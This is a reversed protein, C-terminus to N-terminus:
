ILNNLNNNENSDIPKRNDSYNLNQYDELERGEDLHRKLSKKIGIGFYVYGFNGYILIDTVLYFILQIKSNYQLYNMVCMSILAPLTFLVNRKVISFLKEDKNFQVIDELNYYNKNKKSIVFKYNRRIGYIIFFILFVHLSKKLVIKNMTRQTIAEDDDKWPNYEFIEFIDEIGNYNHFLLIAVLFQIFTLFAFFFYNKAMTKVFINGKMFQFCLREYIMTYLIIGIILGILCNNISCNKVFIEELFTFITIIIGLCFVMDIIKKYKNGELKNRNKSKILRWFGFFEIVILQLQINPKESGSQFFSKIGLEKNRDVGYILFIIAHIYKTASFSIIYSFSYQLPYKLYLIFFFPYILYGNFKNVALIITRTMEKKFSYKEILNVSLNILFEDFAFLILFILIIVIIMIFTNRKRLSNVKKLNDFRIIKQKKQESDEGDLNNSEINENKFKPFFFEQRNSEPFQSFLDM